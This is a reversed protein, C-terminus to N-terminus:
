FRTEEYMLSAERNEIQESNNPFKDSYKEESEEEEIAFAEEEFAQMKKIDKDTLPNNQAKIAIQNVKELADFDISREILPEIKVPREIYDSKIKAIPHNGTLRVYCELDEMTMVSGADVTKRVIKQSGITNGDRISNPGYSQSERVEEIVQEGLDDSVWKAVRSKPSRFYLSTNLLDVIAHAEHSGYLFELQSISQIGVAVCGGFKRIDALTDSLMELRHLSALEDMILWIRKNTNPKLSQIGLMALGLWLSILPKIEKHYKSRSTIFLWGKPKNSSDHANKIWEKISFGSDKDPNLGELFRLAKTYTALVSKISIATKEIEKSVLNESETGKLIDRMEELSTTLLLKLLLIADKDDRNRIKWAMSTLITRASDVWFPDSGQVSKPILYAALSGFEMPNECEKWLDWPACRNSVPNLEVDLKEDFFYPKITCEKDYIIAPDGLRRIEDLLRMIAQTKGSGTSGHFFFGQFESRAPIPLVSLMRIDSVGRSSNVVSKKTEKLSHSLRTGSVFKDKSYKEGKRIFLRTFLIIIGIYIITGIFLSLLTNRLLSAKAYHIASQITKAKLYYSANVTSGNTSTWVVQDEYGTKVLFRSYEQLGLLKIETWSTYLVLLTVLLIFGIIALNLIRGSVQFWQKWNYDFIQGGRIFQLAKQKM